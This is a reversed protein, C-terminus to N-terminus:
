VAMCGYAIQITQETNADCGEGIKGSKIDALIPRGVVFIGLGLMLVPSSTITSVISSVWSTIDTFLTSLNSMGPDTTQLLVVPM